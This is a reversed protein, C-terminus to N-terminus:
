RHHVHAPTPAGVAFAARTLPTHQAGRPTLESEFLILERLAFRAVVVREPNVLASTDVRSEGPARALTLHPAFPKAERAFGLAEWTQELRAHLAHLRTSADHVGLWLVRARRASPFAGVGALSVEIPAEDQLLLRLEREIAPVSASPLEGFFKLTLHLNETPVWRLRAGLSRAREALEHGIAEVARLVDSSLTAALFCRILEPRSQINM